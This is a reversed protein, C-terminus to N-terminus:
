ISKKLMKYWGSVWKTKRATITERGVGPTRWLAETVRDNRGYFPPRLIGTKNLNAAAYNFSCHICRERNGAGVRYERGQKALKSKPTIYM